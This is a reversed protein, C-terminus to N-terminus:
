EVPMLTYTQTEVLSIGDIAKVQALVSVVTASLHQSGRTVEIGHCGSYNGEPAAGVKELFDGDPAFEKEEWAGFDDASLATM